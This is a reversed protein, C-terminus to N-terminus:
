ESGWPVPSGGVNWIGSVVPEGTSVGVVGVVFARTVFAQIRFGGIVTDGERLIRGEPPHLRAYYDIGAPDPMDIPVPARSVDEPNTAAVVRTPYPDFVPDVYFGGGFCLPVGQHIHGVETLYLVAPQEPLKEVAHLPTTGTLGHGPEVQTAGIDALIDLVATSTTGPANVEIHAGSGLHALAAEVGRALTEVNSTPAVKRTASDYLLAPFTTLGAFRLGDLGNVFDITGSLQDLQFGGEHGPYFIDGHDWIRLLVQQTRGQASVARSAEVAKTRSFITWYEPTLRAAEDAEARPVQVLHGLHSLKHGNAVIPRACAMDVAVYGDAGARTITELAGPARGFQKTMAFVKLQRRHAETTMHRANSELTDLDLVYSNAPILNDQHLSVSAELFARNRALLSELFM